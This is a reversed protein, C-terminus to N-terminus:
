PNSLDFKIDTQGRASLLNVVARDGLDGNEAISFLAASIGDNERVMQLESVVPAPMTELDTSLASPIERDVNLRLSNM